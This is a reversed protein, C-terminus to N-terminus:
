PSRWFDSFNHWQFQHRRVMVELRAVWRCLEDDIRARRVKRSETLAISWPVDAFFVYRNRERKMLFCPVVLCGTAAAIQFPGLPFPAMHGLFPLARRPQGSMARDALMCVTGGAALAAYIELSAAFGDRPDIIKPPIDGMNARILSRVAPDESEIMVVHVKGSGLKSLLQGALEWNGMHASLLLCGQGSAVAWRVHEGGHHGFEIQMRKPDSYALMRDCLVRGFASLHRWALGLHEAGGLEPRLRRFYQVSASRARHDLALWLLAVPLSFLVVGPQRVWKMLM